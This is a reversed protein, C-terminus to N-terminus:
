NEFFCLYVFIMRRLVFVLNYISATKKKTNIFEFLAGWKNKFDEKSLKYKYFVILAFILAIPLIIGSFLLSYIGFIFGLIEGSSTFEATIM